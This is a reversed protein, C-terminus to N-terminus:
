RGDGLLEYMALMYEAYGKVNLRGVVTMYWMVYGPFERMGSNGEIYGDLPCPLGGFGSYQNVFHVNDSM